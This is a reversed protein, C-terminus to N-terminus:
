TPSRSPASRVPAARVVPPFGRPTATFLLMAVNQLLMSVGIATVLPTLKPANRVPRYAFREITM